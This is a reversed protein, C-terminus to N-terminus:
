RLLGRSSAHASERAKTDADFTDDDDVPKKESSIDSVRVGTQSEDDDNENNKHENEAHQILSTEVDDEVGVGVDDRDNQRDLSCTCCRKQRQEWKTHRAAPTSYYPEHFDGCSSGVRGRRGPERSPTDRLISVFGAPSSLEVVAHQSTTNKDDDNDDDDDDNCNVTTAIVSAVM